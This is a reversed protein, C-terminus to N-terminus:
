RPDSPQAAAAALQQGTSPADLLGIRAPREAQIVTSADGRIFGVTLAAHIAAPAVNTAIVPVTAILAARFVRLAVSDVM